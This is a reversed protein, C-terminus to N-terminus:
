YDIEYNTFFEEGGGQAGRVLKTRENMMARQKMLSKARRNHREVHCVTKMTEVLSGPSEFRLIKWKMKSSHAILLYVLTLSFPKTVEVIDINFCSRRCFVKFFVDITLFMLLLQSNARIIRRTNESDQFFFLFFTVAFREETMTLKSLKNLWCSNLAFTHFIIAIREWQRKM